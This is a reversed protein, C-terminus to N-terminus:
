SALVSSPCRKRDFQSPPSSVVPHAYLNLVDLDPFSDPISNALAKKKTKLHGKSNTRLEQKLDDRWGELWLRLGVENGEYRELAELLSEGFGCRALAHAVHPGCNPLGACDYDGGCLLAILILGPISLQIDGHSGITSLSYTYTHHEDTNDNTSPHGNNGTM